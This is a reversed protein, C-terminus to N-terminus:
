NPKLSKALGQLLKDRNVFGIAGVVFSGILKYIHLKFSEFMTNQSQIAVLLEAQNEKMQERVGSIQKSLGERAGSIEKSLGERVGSIEKSLGLEVRHLQDRTALPERNSVLESSVNKINSVGNGLFRKTVNLLPRQSYRAVTVGHYLIHNIMFYVGFKTVKQGMVIIDLFYCTSHM